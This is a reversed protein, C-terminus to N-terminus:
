RHLYPLINLWAAQDKLGFALNNLWKRQENLWTALNKLWSIAL